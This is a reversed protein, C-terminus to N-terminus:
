RMSIIAAGTFTLDRKIFNIRPVRRMKQGRKTFLSKLPTSQYLLTLVKSRKATSRTAELRSYALSKAKKMSSRGAAIEMPLLQMLRFSQAEKNLRKPLQQFKVQM